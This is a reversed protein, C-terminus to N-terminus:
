QSFDANNVWFFRELHAVDLIGLIAQRPVTYAFGLCHPVYVNGMFEEYSVYWKNKPDRIVSHNSRYDCHIKGTEITTNILKSAEEVNWAVDDDMKLIAQVKPCAVAVYRLVALHKLTINRYTDILDAQLIDGHIRIEKDILAQEEETEANGIAFLIRFKYEDQWTGYLHRWKNRTKTDNVRSHVTVLYISNNCVNHRPVNTFNRVSLM